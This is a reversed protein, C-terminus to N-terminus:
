TKVCFISMFVNRYARYETLRTFDKFGALRFSQLKPASALGVPFINDLTSLMPAFDYV